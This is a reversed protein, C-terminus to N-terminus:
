DAFPDAFPDEANAEEVVEDNRRNNHEDYRDSQGFAAQRAWGANADAGSSSGRMADGLMGRRKLEELSLFKNEDIRKPAMYGAHVTGSTSVGSAAFSQEFPDVRRQQIGDFPQNLAQSYQVPSPQVMIQSPLIRSPVFAPSVPQLTFATDILQSQTSAFSQQSSKTAGTPNSISSASGSLKSFGSASENTPSFATSNHSSDWASTQSSSSKHAAKFMEKVEKDGTRDILWEVARDIENKSEKLARMNLADDTFGMKRLEHAAHRMPDASLTAIAQASQSSEKQRVYSALSETDFGEAPISDTTVWEIALQVRGGARALALRNIEVDVLGMSAMLKLQGAFPDAM